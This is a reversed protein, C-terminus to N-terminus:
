HSIHLIKRRQASIVSILGLGVTGTVHGGHGHGLTVKPGARWGSWRIAAGEWQGRTEPEM